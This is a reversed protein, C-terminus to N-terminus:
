VADRRGGGPAAGPTKNGTPDEGEQEVSKQLDLMKTGEVHDTLVIRKVHKLSEVVGSMRALAEGIRRLCAAVADHDSARRAVLKLQLEIMGMANNLEHNLTLAAMGLTEVRRRENAQLEEALHNYARALEGFEDDQRDLVVRHAFHEAALERSAAVLREVPNLVIGAARVLVFASANIVVLFAVALGLVIWRFQAALAANTAWDHAQPYALQRLVGELLLIAALSTAVLLVVLPAFMIVLKRRLM